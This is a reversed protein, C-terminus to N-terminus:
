ASELPAVTGDVHLRIASGPAGRSRWGAATPQIWAGAELGVCPRPGFRHALAAVRARDDLRLREEAHPFLVVGPALGLGHDLVEAESAGDPADPADDYFLVIDDTMAMAGAGWALLPAGHRLAEGIAHEVGFFLM